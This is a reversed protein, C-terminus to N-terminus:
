QIQFANLDESLFKKTGSNVMRSNLAYNGRPFTADVTFFTIPGLEHSYNPPWTLSGDGGINLLIIPDIGPNELWVALEVKAETPNPNQLLFLNATVAEGNLYTNKSMTIKLVPFAKNTVALNDLRATEENVRFFLPGSETPTPENGQLDIPTPGSVSRFRVLPGSVSFEYRGSTVAINCQQALLKNAGDIRSWLSVQNGCTGAHQTIDVFFSGIWVEFGNNGGPGGTTDLDFEVAADRFNSVPSLLKSQSWNPSPLCTTVTGVAHTLQMAGSVIAVQGCSDWNSGLETRDFNDQFVSNQASLVVATTLVFIVAVQSNKM